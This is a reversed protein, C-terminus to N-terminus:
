ANEIKYFPWKLFDKSNYSFGSEPWKKLISPSSAKAAAQL